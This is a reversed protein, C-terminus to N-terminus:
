QESFARLINLGTSGSKEPHFQTGCVNGKRVVATIDTGYNTTAATNEGRRAYYGHVFYVYEGEKIYRFLPDDKEFKLSNWGIQPIKLDPSIDGELPV